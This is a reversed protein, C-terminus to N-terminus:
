SPRYELFQSNISDLKGTRIARWNKLAILHAEILYSLELTLERASRRGIVIMGTRGILIGLRSWSYFLLNTFRHGLLKNFIYAQYVVRMYLDKKVPLRLRPSKLHLLRARPSIYLTGRCLRNVRVSFDLDCMHARGILNEDFSTITFISRRYTATGSLWETRILSAPAFSFTTEGSPLLRNTFDPHSLQFVKLFSLQFRSVSSVFRSVKPSMIMPQVGIADPTLEFVARLEGLCKSDLAVDDDAFFIMDGFSQRAGLNWAACVSNRPCWCYRLHIGKQAFALTRHLVVTENIREHHTDIILVENPPSDQSLVTDLTTLLEDKRSHTAIVVSLTLM